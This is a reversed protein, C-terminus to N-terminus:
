SEESRYYDESRAAGAERLGLLDLKFLSEIMKTSPYKGTCAEWAKRYTEADPCWRFHLHETRKETANYHPIRERVLDKVHPHHELHRFAKDLDYNWNDFHGNLYSLLDAVPFPRGEVDFVMNSGFSIRALVMKANKDELDTFPQRSEGLAWEKYEGKKGAWGWTALASLLKRTLVAWRSDESAWSPKLNDPNPQDEPGCFGEWVQDRSGEESLVCRYVLVEPVPLEKTTVTLTRSITHVTTPM